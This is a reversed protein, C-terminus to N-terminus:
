IPSCLQAAKNQIERICSIFELIGAPMNNECENEKFTLLQGSIQKRLEYGDKLVPLHLNEDEWTPMFHTVLYGSLERNQVPIDHIIKQRWLFINENWRSGPCAKSMAKTLYEAIWLIKHVYRAHPNYQYIPDIPTPDLINVTKIDHDLIFLIYDGNSQVPIHILFQM